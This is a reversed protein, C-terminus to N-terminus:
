LAGQSYALFMPILSADVLTKVPGMDLSDADIGSMGDAVECLVSRMLIPCRPGPPLAM